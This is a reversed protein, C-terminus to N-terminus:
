KKTSYHLLFIISVIKHFFYIEFKILLTPSFKGGMLLWIFSAEAAAVTHTVKWRGPRRTNVTDWKAMMREKEFQAYERRDHITTLVKWMLLLALGVAVIAGIVGM